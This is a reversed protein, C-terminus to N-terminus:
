ELCIQKESLLDLIGKGHENLCDPELVSFVRNSTDHSPIGNPLEIFERLFSEHSQSFLVIDGYDEGNSLYTLLGVFLIDSLNHLCKNEM